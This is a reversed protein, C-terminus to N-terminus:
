EVEEGNITDPYAPPDELRRLLHGHVEFRLAVVAVGQGETLTDRQEVLEAELTAAVDGPDADAPPWVVLPADLLSVLLPETALQDLREAYLEARLEGRLEAVGEWWETDWFAPQSTRLSEVLCTVSEGGWVDGLAEPLHTGVREALAAAFAQRVGSM